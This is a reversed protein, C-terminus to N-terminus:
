FTGHRKENKFKKAQENTVHVIYDGVRKYEAQLEPSHNWEKMKAFMFGEGQAVANEGDVRGVAQMPWTNTNNTFDLMGLGSALPKSPQIYHRFTINPYAEQFTAIDGVNSHFERIENSRLYNSYASM